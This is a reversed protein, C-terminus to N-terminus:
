LNLYIVMKLIHDYNLDVKNAEIQNVWKLDTVNARCKVVNLILERHTMGLQKESFAIV